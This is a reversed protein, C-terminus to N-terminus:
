MEYYDVKSDERRRKLFDKKLLPNVYSQLNRFSNDYADPNNRIAKKLYETGHLNALKTDEYV